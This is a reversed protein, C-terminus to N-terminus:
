INQLFVSSPCLLIIKALQSKCPDFVLPRAATLTPHLKNQIGPNIAAWTYKLVTSLPAERVFFLNRATYEEVRIEAAPM